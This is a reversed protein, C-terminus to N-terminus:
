QTPDPDSWAPWEHQEVKDKIAKMIEEMRGHDPLIKKVKGWCDLLNYMHRLRNPKLM